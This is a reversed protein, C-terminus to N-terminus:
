GPLHYLCCNGMEAFCCQTAQWMRMQNILCRQWCCPCGIPVQKRWILQNLRSVQWRENKRTPQPFSCMIVWCCFQLIGYCLFFGCRILFELKACDTRKTLSLILLDNYCAELIAHYYIFCAHIALTKLNMVGRIIRYLFNQEKHCLM